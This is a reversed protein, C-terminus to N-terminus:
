QVYKLQQTINKVESPPLPRNYMISSIISGHFSENSINSLTLSSNNYDNQNISIEENTIQQVNVIQADKYLRREKKIYDYTTIYTHYWWTFLNSPSVYNNNSILTDLLWDNNTDDYYADIVQLKDFLVRIANFDTWYFINNGDTYSRSFSFVRQISWTYYQNYVRNVVSFWTDFESKLINENVNIHFKGSIWQSQDNSFLVWGSQFVVESFNIESNNYDIGRMHYGNWSKDKIVAEWSWWAIVGNADLKYYALIWDMYNQTTDEWYAINMTDEWSLEYPLNPWRDYVFYTTDLNQNLIYNDTIPNAIILWPVMPTAIYNWVVRAEPTDVYAQHFASLRKQELTASLQFANGNNTIWYSYYEQTSPDKIESIWVFNSQFIGFSGQASINKTNVGDSFIVNKVDQPIPLSNNKTQYIILQKTASSLDSLRVSDRTNQTYGSLSVFGITALITLIIIVVLLEVLTFAKQLNKM